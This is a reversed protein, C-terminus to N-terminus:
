KFRKYSKGRNGFQVRAARGDSSETVITSFEAITREFDAGALRGDVGTLPAIMAVGARLVGCGAVGADFDDCATGGGVGLGSAAFGALRLAGEPGGNRLRRANEM